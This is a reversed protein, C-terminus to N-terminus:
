TVAKLALAVSGLPGANIGLAPAAIISLASRRTLFPLYSGLQAVVRKRVATLLLPRDSMVGGGLLVRQASTTLLITGVMEALDAAVPEWRPDGDAVSSPDADFRRALAPGSVLGEICDGHFSCVGEFLDEEARRLRLHGMEPHM